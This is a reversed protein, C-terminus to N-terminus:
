TTLITGIEEIEVRYREARGLRWLGDGFPDSPLPAPTPLLYGIITELRHKVCVPPLGARLAPRLADMALKRAQPYTMMIAGLSM